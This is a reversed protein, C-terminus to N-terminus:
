DLLFESVVEYTSLGHLDKPSLLSGLLLEMFFILNALKWGGLHFNQNSAM